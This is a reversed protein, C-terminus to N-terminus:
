KFFGAAIQAAQVTLSLAEQAIRMALTAPKVAQRVRNEILESTQEVHEATSNIQYSTGVLQESMEDVHGLTESIHPDAMANAAAASAKTLNDLSAQLGSSTQAMEKSADRVFADSDAVTLGLQPGLQDNLTRDTRVIVLRLAAMTKYMEASTKNWYAAQQTEAENLHQTTTRATSALIAIQDSAGDLIELSTETAITLQYLDGRAKETFLSLGRMAITAWVLFLLLAILCALKAVDIARQLM